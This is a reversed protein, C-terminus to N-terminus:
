VSVVDELYLEFVVSEGALPHNVDLTMGKETLSLVEGQADKSISVM